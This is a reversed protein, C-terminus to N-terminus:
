AQQLVSEAGHLFVELDVDFQEEDSASVAESVMARLVPFDDPGVQHLAAAVEVLQPSPPHDAAAIHDHASATALTSLTTLLRGALAPTAGAAVLQQLVAEVPRLMRVDARRGLRFTHAVLGSEITSSRIAHALRKCAEQWGLDVPLDLEAFRAAVAEAVVLVLLGDRDAVHYNVAKRDVGLQQAVGNMTLEHPALERAAAAIQQTDIRAPRGRRRPRDPTPQSPM